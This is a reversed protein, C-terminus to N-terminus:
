AGTKAAALLSWAHDDLSSGRGGQGATQYLTRKESCGPDAGYIWPRKSIGTTQDLRKVSARATRSIRSCNMLANEFISLCLVRTM